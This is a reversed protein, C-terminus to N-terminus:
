VILLLGINRIFGTKLYGFRLIQYRRILINRQNLNSFRYVTTYKQDTLYDQYLTCFERAQRQLVVLTEKQKHLSTIRNKIYSTFNLNGVVNGGHQRYLLTATNIFSIEGFSAAMLGIWGDHLKASKPLPKSKLIDRLAANIMVTCGIFKNEMLLHNLDTKHPDLHSAEFFSAHLTKLDQNVVEADTFVACPLEKGYQEEMKSLRRLTVSIKDKKWVDDQDCLMVYDSTSNRIGELFNRTVGLNVKNQTVHIKDPYNRVYEGLIDLSTDKSGDDYIFLDFDQYTSAIISDIQDRIYHEGNYSAMVITIKSM